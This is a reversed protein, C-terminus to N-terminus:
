IRLVSPISRTWVLIGFCAFSPRLNSACISDIISLQKHKKDCTRDVPLAGTAANRGRGDQERGSRNHTM